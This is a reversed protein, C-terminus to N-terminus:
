SKTKTKEYNEPARRMEMDLLKEVRSRTWLRFGFVFIVTMILSVILALSYSELTDMLRENSSENQLKQAQDVISNFLASAQTENGSGQLILAENFQLTLSTVNAGTTEARVISSYASLAATTPQQGHSSQQTSITIFGFLLLSVILVVLCIRHKM